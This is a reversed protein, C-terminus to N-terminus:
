LCHLSIAKDILYKGQKCIIWHNHMLMISAEKLYIDKFNLKKM